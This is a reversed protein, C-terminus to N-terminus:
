SLDEPYSAILQEYEQTAEEPSLRALQLGLELHAADERHEVLEVLGGEGAQRIRPPDGGERVSVPPRLEPAAVALVRNALAMNTAPIRYGVTLETRRVGREAYCDDICGSLQELTSVAPHAEGGTPQAM